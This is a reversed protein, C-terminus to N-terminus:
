SVAAVLDAVYVGWNLASNTIAAFNVTSTKTTSCATSASVLFATVINTSTDVLPSGAMGPCSSGIYGMSGDTAGTSCTILGSTTIVGLREYWAVNCGTVSSSQLPYGAYIVTRPCILNGSQRYVVPTGVGSLFPIPRVLQLVAGNNTFAGNRLWGRTTSFNIINFSYGAQCNDPGTNAQTRCCVTGYRGGVAVPFFKNSGGVAVCDGATVAHTRTVFFATCVSWLSRASNKYLYARCISQQIAGTGWLPIGPNNSCVSPKANSSNSAAYPDGQALPNPNSLILEPPIDEAPSNSKLEPAVAKGGPVPRLDGEPANTMLHAAAAAIAYPQVDGPVQADQAQPNFAEVPISLPNMTGTLPEFQSSPDQSAQSPTTVSQAMVSALSLSICVLLIYTSAHPKDSRIIAM